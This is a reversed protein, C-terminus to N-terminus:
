TPNAMSKEIFTLQDLLFTNQHMLHGSNYAVDPDLADDSSVTRLEKIWEPRYPGVSSM